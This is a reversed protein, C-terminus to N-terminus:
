CLHACIANLDFGHTASDYALAENVSLLKKDDFLSMCSAQDADEDVWDSFNEDDDDESSSTSLADAEPDEGASDLVTVPLKVNM